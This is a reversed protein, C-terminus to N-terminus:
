RWTRAAPKRQKPKQSPPSKVLTWNDPVDPLDEELCSYVLFDDLGTPKSWDMEPFPVEPDNSRIFQDEYPDMELVNKMEMSDDNHRVFSPLPMRFNRIAAVREEIERDAQVRRLVELDDGSKGAPFEIGEEAWEQVLKELEPDALPKNYKSWPKQQESKSAEMKPGAAKPKIHMQKLDKAPANGPSPNVAANENTINRLPVRASLAKKVTSQLSKASSNEADSLNLSPRMAAGTPKMTNTINSLTKRESNGAQQQLGIGKGMMSMSSNNQLQMKGSLHPLIAANEDQPARSRARLAMGSIRERLYGSFREWVCEITCGSISYHM